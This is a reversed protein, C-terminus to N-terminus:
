AKLTLNCSFKCPFDISLVIAFHINLYCGHLFCGFSDPFSLSQGSAQKTVKNRIFLDVCTHLIMDIQLPCSKIKIKNFFFQKKYKKEIYKSCPLSPLFSVHIFQVQPIMTISYRDKVTLFPQIRLIEMGISYESCM